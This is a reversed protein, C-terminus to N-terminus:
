FKHNQSVKRLTLPRPRASRIHRHGDGQRLTPHPPGTHLRHQLTRHQRGQRRPMGYRVPSLPLTGVRARGLGHKQHFTGLLLGRQTRLPSYPRLRPGPLPGATQPHDQDTRITEPAPPGPLLTEAQSTRPRTGAHPAQCPIGDPRRQRHVARAQTHKLATDRTTPHTTSRNM